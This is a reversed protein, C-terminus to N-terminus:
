LPVYENLTIGTIMWSVGNWLANVEYTTDEQIFFGDAFYITENNVYPIFNVSTSSDTTFGFVVQQINSDNTHKLTINLTSVVSDFRYYNGTEAALSTGTAQVVPVKSQQNAEVGDIMYILTNRLDVPQILQENNDPLNDNIEQIINSYDSM